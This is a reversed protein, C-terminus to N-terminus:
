RSHVCEWLSGPDDIQFRNLESRDLNAKFFYERENVDIEPQDLEPCFMVFCVAFLWKVM